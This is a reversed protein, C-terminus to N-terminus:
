ITGTYGATPGGQDLARRIPHDAPLADPHEIGALTRAVFGDLDAEAGAMEARFAAGDEHLRAAVAAKRPRAKGALLDHLLRAKDPQEYELLLLAERLVEEPLSALYAVNDLAAQRRGARDLKARLKAEIDIALTFEGAELEHELRRIAGLAAPAWHGQRLAAHLLVALDRVPDYREAEAV